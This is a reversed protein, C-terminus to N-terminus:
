ASKAVPHSRWIVVPPRASYDPNEEEMDPYKYKARMRWIIYGKDQLILVKTKDFSNFLTSNSDYVTQFASTELTLGEGSRISSNNPTTPKYSLTSSSQWQHFYPWM